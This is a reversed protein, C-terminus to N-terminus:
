FLIKLDLKRNFTSLLSLLPQENLTRHSFSIYKIYTMQFGRVESNSVKLLISLSLEQLDGALILALALRPTQGRILDRISNDLTQM